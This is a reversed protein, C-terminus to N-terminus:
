FLKKVLAGTLVFIDESNKKIDVNMFRYENGDVVKSIGSTMAPYIVTDFYDLMPKEEDGFVINFNAVQASKVM